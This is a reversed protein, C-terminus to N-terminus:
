DCEMRYSWELKPAVVGPWKEGRLTGGSDGGIVSISLYDRGACLVKQGPIGFHLHLIYNSKNLLDPPICCTSVYLGPDLSDNGRISEDTTTFAVVRDDAIMQMVVRMGSIRKRIRYTM